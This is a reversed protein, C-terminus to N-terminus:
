SRSHSVDQKSQLWLESYSNVFEEPSGLEKILTNYDNCEKLDFDQIADNCALVMDDGFKLREIRALARLKMKYKKIAQTM